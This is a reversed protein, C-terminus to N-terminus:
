FGCANLSDSECTGVAWDCYGTQCETAQNCAEGVAKVPTCDGNTGCFLGDACVIDLGADNACASGATGDGLAQCTGDTADSCALGVFPDCKAQHMTGCAGGAARVLGTVRCVQESPARATPGCIGVDCREGDACSAGEGANKACVGLNSGVPKRCYLGIACSTQTTTPTAFTAGCAAGNSALDSSVVFNVCVDNWCSGDGGEPDVCKDDATCAEGIPTRPVCTGPCETDSARCHTGSVCEADHECAGGEAITGQFVKRCSPDLNTVCQQTRVCEAAAAGDYLVTGKQVADIESVLLDQGFAKSYNALCDAETPLFTGLSGLEGGCRYLQRCQLAFLETQFSELPIFSAEPCASFFPVAFLVALTCRLTTMTPGNQDPVQGGAPPVFYLWLQPAWRTM